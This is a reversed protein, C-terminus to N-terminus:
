LVPSVERNTLTPVRKCRKLCALRFLNMENRKFEQRPGRIGHGLNVGFGVAADSRIQDPDSQAVDHVADAFTFDCQRGYTWVYQMRPRCRTADVTNQPLLM